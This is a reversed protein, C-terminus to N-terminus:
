FKKLAALRAELDDFGVSSSSSELNSPAGTSEGPTSYNNQGYSDPQNFEPGAIKSDYPNHGSPPMSMGTDIPHGEIPPM